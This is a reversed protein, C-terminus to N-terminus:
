FYNFYPYLIIIVILIYIKIITLENPANVLFVTQRDPTHYLKGMSAVNLLVCYIGHQHADMQKHPSHLFNQVFLDNPLFLKIIIKKYKILM